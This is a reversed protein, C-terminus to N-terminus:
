RTHMPVAAPSHLTASAKVVLVVSELVRGRALRNQHCTVAISLLPLVVCASPPVQHTISPCGRTKMGITICGYDDAPATHPRRPANGRGHGHPPSPTPRGRGKKSHKGRPPRRRVAEGQARQNFREQSVAVAGGRQQKGWAM